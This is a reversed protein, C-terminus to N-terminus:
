TTENTEDKKGERFVYNLDIPFENDFEANIKIIQGNEALSVRCICSGSTKALTKILDKIKGLDKTEM